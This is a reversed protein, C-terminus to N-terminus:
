RRVSRSHWAARLSRRASSAAYEFPTSVPASQRPAGGLGSAGTAPLSAGHAEPVNSVRRAAVGAFLLLRLREVHVRREADRESVIAVEHVRGLQALRQRQKASRKSKSVRALKQHERQFTPLKLTKLYHSLLIEPAETSM